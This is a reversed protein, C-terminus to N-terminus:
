DFLKIKRRIIIIPAEEILLSEKKREKKLTENYPAEIHVLQNELWMGGLNPSISTIFEISADHTSILPTTLNVSYFIYSINPKDDFFVIGYSEGAYKVIKGIDKHWPIMQLKSKNVLYYETTSQRGDHDHGLHSLNNAKIVTSNFLIKVLASSYGQMHEIQVFSGKPLHDYQGTTICFGGVKLENEM